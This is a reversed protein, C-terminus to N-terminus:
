GTSLERLGEPNLLAVRGRRLEILERSRMENLIRTATERHVGILHALEEHTCPVEVPETHPIGARQKYSAHKHALELLLSALRAPVRKLALDALHQETEILRHGLMEVIRYAIRVDGLLHTKVDDRSMLCLTCPTMAEAYSSYLAQGLLTMEGFFTGAELIATTFAKGEASLHDRRVRGQKLLFLVETPEQPSYFVTGAEVEKLPMREGLAEVEDSTLDQFLEVERLFIHRDLVPKAKM